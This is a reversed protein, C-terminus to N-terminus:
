YLETYVSLLICFIDLLYYLLYIILIIVIIIYCDIIYTCWSYFILGISTIIIIITNIVIIVIITNIM